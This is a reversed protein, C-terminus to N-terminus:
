KANRRKQEAAIKASRILTVIRPVVKSRKGSSIEKTFVKKILAQAKCPDEGQPM